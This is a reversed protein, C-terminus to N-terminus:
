ENTPQLKNVRTQKSLGYRNVAGRFTTWSVGLEAALDEGKTVLYKNKIIEIEQVTWKRYKKRWPKAISYRRLADRVNSETVGLKKAIEKRTLVVYMVRMFELNKMTWIKNKRAMVVGM